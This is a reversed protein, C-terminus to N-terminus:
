PSEGVAPDLGLVLGELVSGSGVRGVVELRGSGRLAFITGDNTPSTPGGRYRDGTTTCIVLLGGEVLRGRLNAVIRALAREDFYDRNLVNAARVVHYRGRISDNQLVDDEVVEIRGDEILRPSVLPVTRRGKKGNSRRLAARILWIWPGYLPLTRRAPPNPVSRGFIEYQLPHGSGDVLVHLRPGVPVLHANVNVDGATIAHEVGLRDLSRSWELTSIGSSVAVDMVRLPRAPPLLAAVAENLDDLRNDYTLKYTGNKQRISGFFAREIAEQRATDRPGEPFFFERATPVRDGHRM